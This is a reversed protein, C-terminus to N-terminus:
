RKDFGLEEVVYTLHDELFKSMLNHEYWQDKTMKSFEDDSWEDAIELNSIPAADVQDEYIPEPLQSKKRETIKRAALYDPLLIVRVFDFLSMSKVMKMKRKDARIMDITSELFSSFAESFAFSYDEQGPIPEKDFIDYLVMKNLMNKVEERVENDTM